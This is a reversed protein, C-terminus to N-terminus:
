TTMFNPDELRRCTVHFLRPDGLDFPNQEILEMLQFSLRDCLRGASTRHKRGGRVAVVAAAATADHRRWSAADLFRDLM